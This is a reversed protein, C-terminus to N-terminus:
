SYISKLKLMIRVDLGAGGLDVALVYIFKTSDEENVVKLCTNCTSGVDMETAATILALNLQEYPMGCAPPNTALAESALYSQRSLM